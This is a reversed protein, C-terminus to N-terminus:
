NFFPRHDSDRFFFCCGRCVNRATLFKHHSIIPQHSSSLLLSWSLPKDLCGSFANTLGFIVCPEVIKLMTVREFFFPPSKLERGRTQGDLRRGQRHRDLPSFVEEQCVTNPLSSRRSKNVSLRSSFCFTVDTKGSRACAHGYARRVGAFLFFLEVRVDKGQGQVHSSARVLM